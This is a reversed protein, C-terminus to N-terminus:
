QSLRGLGDAADADSPSGALNVMHIVNRGQRKAAYLARDATSLLDAPTLEDTPCLLGVGVSVTIYAQHSVGFNPICLAEVSARIREAAVYTAESSANVMLVVFEEGGLRVVLDADRSNDHMAKAVQQLCIDGQPHGYFDNYAKFHDIDIVMLGMCTGKDIAEKWRVPLVTDFQRRNALNTLPDTISLQSLKQNDKLYYGARIKEKLVHLYSTRESLEFRYNAVLSFIGMAIITFIALRKAEVPMPEYPLVFALIIVISAASSVCAYSFRLSYVINGVLLILGYTFVDLYSYPAISKSFILCSLITAVIVTSAMMTERLVPSVGRYVWWLIPLGFPLMVGMRLQVATAFTEPRFSYDNILFLCYIIASIVGALVMNRSRQRQTDAEFRAEVDDAFRLRCHAGDLEDEVAKLLADNIM